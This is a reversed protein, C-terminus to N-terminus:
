LFRLLIIWLLALSIEPIANSLSLAAAATGGAKRGQRSRLCPLRADHGGRQPGQLAGDLLEEPGHAGGRRSRGGFYVTVMVVVWSMM